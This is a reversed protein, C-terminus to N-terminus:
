KTAWGAIVLKAADQMENESLEGKEIKRLMEQESNKTSVKRNLGTNAVEASRREEEANRLLTKAVPHNLAEAISLGLAKATTKVLPLDAKQVKADMLAYLDDGSLDKEEKAQNEVVNTTLKEGTEPDLGALKRTEKLKERNSMKDDHLSKKLDEASKLRAVVRDVVDENGEYADLGLDELAETKLTEVDKPTFTM